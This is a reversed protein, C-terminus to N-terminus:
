ELGIKENKKPSGVPGAKVQAARYAVMGKDQYPKNLEARAVRLAERQVKEDVGALLDVIAQALRDREPLQIQVHGDGEQRAASWLMLRGTSVWRDAMGIASRQDWDNM